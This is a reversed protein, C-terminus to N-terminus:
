GRTRNRGQKKEDDLDADDIGGDFDSDIISFLSEGGEEAADDFYDLAEVDAGDLIEDIQQSRGTQAPESSGSLATEVSVRISQLSEESDDSVEVPDVAKALGIALAEEADKNSVVPEVVDGGLDVSGTVEAGKVLELATIVDIEKEKAVVVSKDKNSVANVIATNEPSENKGSVEEAKGADSINEPASVGAPIEEEKAAGETKVVDDNAEEKKAVVSNRDPADVTREPVESKDGLVSKDTNVSERTDEESGANKSDSGDDSETKVPDRTGEEADDTKDYLANDIDFNNEPADKPTNSGSEDYTDEEEEFKSGEEDEDELGSGEVEGPTDDIEEPADLEEGDDEALEGDGPEEDADEASDSKGGEEESEDSVDETDEDEKSDDLGRDESEANDGENEDDKGREGKENEELVSGDSDNLLVTKDETEAIAGDSGDSSDDDVVSFSGEPVDSSKGDNSPQTVGSSLLANVDRSGYANYPGMAYLDSGTYSSLDFIHASDSIWAVSSLDITQTTFVIPSVPDCSCSGKLNVEPASFLVVLSEDGKGHTLVQGYLNAEVSSRVMMLQPYSASSTPFFEMQEDAPLTCASLEVSGRDGQLVFINASGEKSFTVNDRSSVAIESNLGWCLFGGLLLFM